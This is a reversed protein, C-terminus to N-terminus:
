PPSYHSRHQRAFFVCNVRKVFLWIHHPSSSGLRMRVSVVCTHQNIIIWIPKSYLDDLLFLKKIMFECNLAFSSAVLEIWTNLVCWVILWREDNAMNYYPETTQIYIFCNTAWHAAMRHCRTSTSVTVGHIVNIGVYCLEIVACNELKCKIQKENM